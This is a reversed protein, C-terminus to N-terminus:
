RVYKELVGFQIRLRGVEDRASLLVLLCGDPRRFRSTGSWAVTALYARLPQAPLGVINRRPNCHSKHMNQNTKHELHHSPIPPWNTALRSCRAHRTHLLCHSSDTPQGSPRRLHTRARSSYFRHDHRLVSLTHRDDHTFSMAFRRWNSGNPDAM